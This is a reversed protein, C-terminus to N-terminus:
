PAHCSRAGLAALVSVIAALTFGLSMANLKLFGRMEKEAYGINLTDFLSKM